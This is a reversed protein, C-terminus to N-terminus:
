WSGEDRSEARSSGSLSVNPITYKIKTSPNFPNPYNQELLHTQPITNVIEDFVSTTGGTSTKLLYVM